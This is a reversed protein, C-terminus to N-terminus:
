PSAYKQVKGTRLNKLKYKLKQVNATSFSDILQDANVDSGKFTHKFRYTQNKFFCGTKVKGRISYPHQVNVIIKTSGDITIANVVSNLEENQPTYSEPRFTAVELNSENGLLYVPYVVAVMGDRVDVDLYDGWFFTTGSM